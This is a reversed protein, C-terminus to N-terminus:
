MWAPKNTSGLVDWAAAGQSEGRERGSSTTLGAEKGHWSDPNISEREKWRVLEGDTKRSYSLDRKIQDQFVSKQLLRQM